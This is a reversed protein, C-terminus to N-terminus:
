IGSPIHKPYDALASAKLLQMLAERPINFPLVDKSLLKQVEDLSRKINNNTHVEANREQKMDVLDNWQIESFGLKYAESLIRQKIANAEQIRQNDNSEYADKIYRSLKNWNKM